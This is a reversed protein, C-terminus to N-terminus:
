KVENFFISKGEKTLLAPSTVGYLEMKGLFFTRYEKQLESLRRENM